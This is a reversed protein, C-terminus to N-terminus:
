GETVVSFCVQMGYVTYCSYWLGDGDDLVEDVSVVGLFTQRVDAAVFLVEDILPEEELGASLSDVEALALGRGCAPLGGARLGASM